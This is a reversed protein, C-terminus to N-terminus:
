QCFERATAIYDLLDPEPRFWEGTMRLHKFQGHLNQERSREGHITRLLRLPVPSSAQLASLRKKVDRSTGIKIPGTDGQQIFYVCGTVEPHPPHSPVVSPAPTTPAVREADRRARAEHSDPLYVKGTVARHRKQIADWCDASCGHPGACVSGWFWTWGWPPDQYQYDGPVGLGRTGCHDCIFTTASAM